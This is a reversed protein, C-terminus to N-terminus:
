DEKALLAQEPQTGPIASGIGSRSVAPIGRLQRADGGAMGVPTSSSRESERIAIM